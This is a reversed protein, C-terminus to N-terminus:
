NVFIAFKRWVRKFDEVSIEKNDINEPDNIYFSKINKGEYEFGSIVIMHGSKKPNNFDKSLSAIVPKNGLLNEKIKEIGLDFFGSEFNSKSFSNDTLNFKISRFEQKYALVGHNRLIIILLEHGWGFEKTYGDFKREGKIFDNTIVLGEKILDMPKTEKKYFDLVMQLCVIGCTKRQWDKEIFDSYQSYYSLDIKM